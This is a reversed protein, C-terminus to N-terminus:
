QGEEPHSAPHIIGNMDLYLNDFEIQNPNPQSTDVPVETGDPAKQPYDEKVQPLYPHIGDNSSRVKLGSPM